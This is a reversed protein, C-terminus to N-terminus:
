RRRYRLFIRLLISDARGFGFAALPFSVGYAFARCTIRSSMIFLCACYKKEKKEFIQLPPM